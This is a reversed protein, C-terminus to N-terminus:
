NELDLYYAKASEEIEEDINSDYKFSHIRWQNEPKYFQFTFRIPQRDYKVLYSMLIFSDSLKKEVILEYGYYQGVFDENLASLQQKLKTIADTARAMWKNTSYLNDIAKSAGDNKYENFFNTVIEEPKNQGFTILSFSFLILTVFTKM